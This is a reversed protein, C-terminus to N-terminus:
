LSILVIFILVIAIYAYLIKASKLKKDLNHKVVVFYESLCISAFNIAFVTLISSNLVFLVSLISCIM